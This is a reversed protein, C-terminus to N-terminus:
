KLKFYHGYISTQPSILFEHHALLDLTKVRGGSGFSRTYANMVM